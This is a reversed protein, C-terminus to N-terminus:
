LFCLGTNRLFQRRTVKGQAVWMAPIMASIFIVQPTTAPPAGENLDMDQTYGDCDRNNHGTDYTACAYLYRFDNQEGASCDVTLTDQITGTHSGTRIVAVLQGTNNAGGDDDRSVTVFYPTGEVFAAFIDTSASAGGEVVRLYLNTNDYYFINQLDESASILAEENNIANAIMWMVQRPVTVDANEILMEFQHTFDGDFHDVGHDKYVYSNDGRSLSTWSVTSSTVTIDNNEDVETYTTFDENAM